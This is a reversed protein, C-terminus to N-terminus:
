AGVREFGTGHVSKLMNAVHDFAGRRVGEKSEGEGLLQFPKLTGLFGKGCPTPERLVVRFVVASIIVMRSQEGPQVPAGLRQLHDALAQFHGPSLTVAVSVALQLGQLIVYLISGEGREFSTNEGSSWDPRVRWGFM